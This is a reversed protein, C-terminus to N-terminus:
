HFLCTYKIDVMVVSADRSNYVIRVVNWNVLENNLLRKFNPKFHGHKVM